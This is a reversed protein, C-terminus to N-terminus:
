PDYEVPHYRLAPRVVLAGYDFSRNKVPLPRDQQRDALEQRILDIAGKEGERHGATPLTLLRAESGRLAM